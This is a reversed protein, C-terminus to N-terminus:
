GIAPVGSTKLEHVRTRRGGPLQRGRRRRREARRALDGEHEAVLATVLQPHLQMTDEQDM